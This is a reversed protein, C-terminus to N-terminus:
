TLERLKKWQHEVVHVGDNSSANLRDLPHWTDCIYRTVLPSQLSFSVKDDRVWTGEPMIAEVEKKTPFVKDKLAIGNLGSLVINSVDGYGSVVSPQAAATARLSHLPRTAVSRAAGMRAASGMPLPSAMFAAAEPMAACAMAAVAISRYMM